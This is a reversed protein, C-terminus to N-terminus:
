EQCGRRAGVGLLLADMVLAAGRGERPEGREREERRRERRRRGRRGERERV